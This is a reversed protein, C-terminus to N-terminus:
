GLVVLGNKLTSKMAPSNTTSPYQILPLNPVFDRDAPLEGQAM